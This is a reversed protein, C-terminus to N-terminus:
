VELVATGGTERSVVMHVCCAKIFPFGKIGFKDAAKVIWIQAALAAFISRPRAKITPCGKVRDAPIILVAICTASRRLVAVRLRGIFKKEIKLRTLRILKLV